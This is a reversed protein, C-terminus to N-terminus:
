NLKNIFFDFLQDTYEKRQDYCRQLNEKMSDVWIKTLECSKSLYFNEKINQEYYIISNYTNKLKQYIINLKIKYHNFKELRFVYENHYYKNTYEQIKDLYNIVHDCIELMLEFQSIGKNDNEIYKKMLRDILNNKQHNEIISNVLIDM